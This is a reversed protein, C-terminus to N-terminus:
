KAHWRGGIANFVTEATAQAGALNPHFPAGSGLKAGNVWPTDSCVGHGASGARMDVFLMGSDEAAQKTVEHLRAGVARGTDAMMSDLGLRPCTDEDPLIVPYSVLVILARPARTRIAQAIARFNEGVRDFDREELPKAGKWFLKGLAGASGSAFALDGIYGVDNGGSTITVLQADPGIAALQPGLFVQGGKLIHETTSGSCSMDVLSLGTMRALIHPYGNSSRMCAFPSGPDRSGLGLGAAFSSGLAVYQGLMDPKRKGQWLLVLLFVGILILLAVVGFMAFKRFM